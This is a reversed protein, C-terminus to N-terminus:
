RGASAIQGRVWAPANARDVTMWKRAVQESALRRAEPDRILTLHAAALEPMEYDEVLRNIFSKAATDKATSEALSTM